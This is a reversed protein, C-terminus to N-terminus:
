ELYNQKTKQFTFYFLLKVTTETQFVLEEKTLQNINKERCEYVRITVRFIRPARRVM